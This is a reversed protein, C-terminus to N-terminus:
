TLFHYESGTLIIPIRIEDGNTSTSLAIRTIGPLLGAALLVLRIVVNLDGVNANLQVFTSAGLRGRTAAGLLLLQATAGVTAAGVGSARRM